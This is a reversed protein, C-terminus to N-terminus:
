TVCSSHGSGIEIIRRPKLWRIMLHLMIADAHAYKENAYRYRFGPIAQERFPIGPYIEAFQELLEWQEPLHLDIGSAELDAPIKRLADAVDDDSPVPSYYHGATFPIHPRYRNEYEDCSLMQHLLALRSDTTNNLRAALYECDAPSCERRLVTQYAWRVFEEPPLDAIPISGLSM